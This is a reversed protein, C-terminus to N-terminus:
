HKDAELIVDVIDIQEQWFHKIPEPAQNMKGMLGGRLSHIIKPCFNSIKEKLEDDLEEYVIKRWNAFQHRQLFLIRVCTKFTTSLEDESAYITCLHNADKLINTIERSVKMGSKDALAIFLEISIPIKNMINGPIEFGYELWLKANGHYGYTVFIESGPVITKNSVVEYIDGTKRLRAECSPDPVHNLMDVLPIVAINDGEKNDLDEHVNLNEIFICRTNVVHWAWLIEQKTTGPRVRPIKDYIDKIEKVQREWVVQDHFPLGVVDLGQFLPTGFTRPLMTLYPAYSSNPNKDEVIFFLAIAESPTFKVDSGRLMEACEKHNMVTTSTILVDLPLELIMENPRIEKKAYIGNGGIEANHQLQIRDTNVNQARMWEIFAAIKADMEASMPIPQLYFIAREAALPVGGQRASALSLAPLIM